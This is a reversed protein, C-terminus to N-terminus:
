PSTNGEHKAVFERAAHLTSIWLNTVEGTPMSSDGVIGFTIWWRFYRRFPLRIGVLMLHLHQCLEEILEVDRTTM